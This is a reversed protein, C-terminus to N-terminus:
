GHRLAGRQPLVTRELLVVTGYLVLAIACVITVAAFIRATALAPQAQVIVFGLGDSSGAWEAFVAGVAAYTAAVRAGSFVAPLASPISLRRFIALRTAAFSTMLELRAPDVGRLGDVANVAIPFFCVLMVIVIKPALAFGLLITLIPAIVVIPITQSLVLLPMLTYRLTASFHIATAV